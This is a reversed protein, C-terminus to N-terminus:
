FINNLNLKTSNKIYELEELCEILCLYASELDGNKAHEPLKEINTELTKIDDNNFFFYFIDSNKEWLSRITTTTKYFNVRKQHSNDETVAINEKTANELENIMENCIKETESLSFLGILVSLMIFFIAIYIRKM